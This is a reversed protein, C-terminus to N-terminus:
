SYFQLALNMPCIPNKQRWFDQALFHVRYRFMKISNPPNVKVTM